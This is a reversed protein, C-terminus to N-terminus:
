GSLWNKFESVRAKSILVDKGPDPDIKLALKRNFYQSAGKIVQRAVIFQRNARFFIEPDLSSMIKELSQDLIYKKHKRTILYVLENELLFYAINSTEVPIIRDGVYVLFNKRFTHDKNRKFSEIMILLKQYDESSRESFLKRYKQLANTIENRDIPKLLYDISNVKFAKLAFEDYATTFIVPFPVKIQEFIEFSNGDALRIDFFGLDPSPNDGIWKVAEDVSELIALIQLEPELEELLDSLNRAVGPEDEIILVKV